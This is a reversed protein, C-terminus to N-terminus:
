SAAVEHSCAEELAYQRDLLAREQTQMDYFARGKVGVKAEEIRWSAEIVRHLEAAMAAVPCAASM